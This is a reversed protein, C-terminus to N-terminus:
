GGITISGVYPKFNTRTATVQVQTLPTGTGPLTFSAQGFSNTTKTLLVRPPQASTTWGGLLTVRHGAVPAGLKRVTVTVSGGWAVSAPHTVEQLAPPRTWVPMEPDGFLTQTYFTWLQRVGGTALRLGAAPGLRELMSLKGWFFEEYNDGVGIWGYRTNGVYGVAGGDPDALSVEALSDAGDPRATSCSNGFAIFFRRNNAFDPQSAINIGCCGGWWGHGSLSAFHVGNDLAARVTDDELPVIPPPASLDFYDEYHREVGSFDPYWGNMLSRLNEKEAAALELGTPDWFFSNPNIDAEPGLAKIFRTPTASQTAYSDSTTFYWGLNGANAATNYPIVFQTAARAILQHSPTGGSLTLDFNTRIKTTTTGNVHTFRGEAPPTTTDAQRSLGERGWYASAYLIKQLYTSDVAAGGPAELREYTLVKDVFAAALAGSEVSVRGVYVDSWFDVADLTVEGSGNWHYQGYLGNNNHDFDHKGPKSYGPGVVSAYYFDSPISNVDRFWYYDDDIVALPGEVIIYTSTQGAPLRTFGEDRTTLEAESTYYWGLRGGGAERDFPIRVGGHMTSLPDTASPTFAPRLKVVSTGAIVHCRNAPPPNDGHRACGITHYTSCGTLHRMPIVNVDGALLLYLTDWNAHAHKVFNRVVEQLDRAFGGQTFDGFTGGVIQSVTVVRTRMGRATKWQALREFEAVLDGTLAAGREALTPARTTGDGRDISAPWAYDDTLIICPLDEMVLLGPWFIDKAVSVSKRELLVSALEAYHVGVKAQKRDREAARRRAKALDFKARYRLNPYYLFAQEAPDYQVPRVRVAAMQIAGIEEVGELEVLTEPYRRGQELYRPDPPTFAVHVNATSFGDHFQEPDIGVDPTAEQAPFPQTAVPLRVPEGPVVELGLVDGGLPLVLYQMQLPVAPAGPAAETSFGPLRPREFAGRRELRLADKPLSVGGEVEDDPRSPAHDGLSERTLEIQFDEDKGANWRVHKKTEVLLRSPPAYIALYIDPRKDFLERFDHEGYVLEFTGDQRTIATGLLDDFLLDKDYARVMLGEVGLGSEKERVRGTVKFRLSDAVEM